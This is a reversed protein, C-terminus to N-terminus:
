SAFAVLNSDTQFPVFHTQHPRARLFQHFLITILWGRINNPVPLFRSRESAVRFTRQTLVLARRPNGCLRAAFGFVPQYYLDVLKETPSPSKPKM